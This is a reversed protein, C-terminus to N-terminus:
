QCKSNREKRFELRNVAESINNEKLRQERRIADLGDEERMGM